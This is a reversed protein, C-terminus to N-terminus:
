LGFKARLVLIRQDCGALAAHGRDLLRSAEYLKEPLAAAAAADPALRKDELDSLGRQVETKLVLGEATPKAHALCADKAACVDQDTCPSGEIAPLLSPKEANEARRFRDVNAVLTSAEGKAPNACGLGLGVGIGIGIGVGLGVRIGVGVGIRSRPTM